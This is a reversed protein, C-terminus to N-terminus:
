RTDSDKEQFIRNSHRTALGYWDRHSSMGVDDVLGRFEDIFIQPTIGFDINSNPLGEDDWETNSCQFCVRLRKVDGGKGHIEITHHPRFCVSQTTPTSSEKHAVQSLIHLQDDSLVVRRYEIIRDVSKGDDATVEGIWSHEVLEVRDAYSLRELLVENFRDIDTSYDVPRECGSVAWCCM